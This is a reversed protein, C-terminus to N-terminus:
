QFGGWVWPISAAAGAIAAPSVAYLALWACIRWFGPLGLVYFEGFYLLFFPTTGRVTVFSDCFNPAAEKIQETLNIFSFSEKGNNNPPVAQAGPLEASYPLSTKSLSVGLQSAWRTLTSYGIDKLAAYERPKLGSAMCEQLLAIRQEKTSKQNKSPM